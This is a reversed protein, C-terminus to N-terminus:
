RRAECGTYPADYLCVQMAGALSISAVEDGASRTSQSCTACAESGLHDALKARYDRASM